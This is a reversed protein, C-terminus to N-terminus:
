VGDWRNSLPCVGIEVSELFLALVFGSGDRRVSAVGGIRDGTM